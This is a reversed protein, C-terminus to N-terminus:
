FLVCLLCSTPSAQPAARLSEFMPEDADVFTVRGLDPNEQKLRGTLRRVLRRRRASGLDRREGLGPNDDAHAFLGGPNVRAHLLL